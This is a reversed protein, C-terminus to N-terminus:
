GTGWQQQWLDAVQADAAVQDLDVPDRQWEAWTAQYRRRATEVDVSLARAVTEWSAGAALETLVAHDVLALSLLRIRRASRIRKGPDLDTTTDRVIGAASDGIHQADEALAVLARAQQDTM